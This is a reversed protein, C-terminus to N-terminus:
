SEVEFLQNVKDLAGRWEKDVLAWLQQELAKRQDASFWRDNRGSVRFRYGPGQGWESGCEVWFAVDEKLAQRFTAQGMLQVKRLLDDYSTTLVREAQVIVERAETYDPNELMTRCLDAFAAVSSGLALVALRRAGHGLHHSYSLNHWEGERRVTARITAVHARTIEDMLSDQVHAAMPQLAAHKETWTTLMRGAHRIVEQVQEREQNQLVARANSTVGQLDRRMTARITRLRDLLIGRFEAAPDRYADFFGVPLAELNFPQLSQAIQEAKLDYGEEASQVRQGSEDKVALAEGTRPLVLVMANTKLSRVGAQLARELLQRPEAGPANNFGSCLVALTHPEDLHVELDARAATRDIGKTDVLRVSFETAGLLPDPVVVEIRRPLTFDPHRGNNVAEFTDKLWVEPSKGDNRDFWIDRRDRRHLQMRALIEVVLERVGAVSAALDKAPDRRVTKGDPGKERRPRLDAMNRIAREVERSIGQQDGESPEDDVEHQGKRLYEAFETVDARVEDETRPEVLLGHGPGARLHVECITIGGAGAELVPVPAGGDADPAELGTLRCIATSKGIGISGIFAIEHERNLLLRAGREIEGVLAGLRREFANRVQPDLRKENLASLVQEAEWLVDQDPHDLSPQPLYIWERQLRRRLGEAEDTGIAGLIADLEERSIPREGSEVRSLITPSLVIRKAVDAQRLGARERIQALLSGIATRSADTPMNAAGDVTRQAFIRLVAPKDVFM